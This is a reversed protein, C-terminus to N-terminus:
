YSSGREQMVMFVFFLKCGSKFFLNSFRTGVTHKSQATVNIHPKIHSLPRCQNCCSQNLLLLSWSGMANAWQGDEFKPLFSALIGILTRASFVKTRWVESYTTMITVPQRAVHEPSWIFHTNKNRHHKNRWWIRHINVQRISVIRVLLWVYSKTFFYCLYLQNRNMKRVKNHRGFLQRAVTILM